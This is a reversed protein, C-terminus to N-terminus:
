QIFLESFGAVIHELFNYYSYTDLINTIKGELISAFIIGFMNTVKADWDYKDLVDIVRNEGCTKFWLKVCIRM